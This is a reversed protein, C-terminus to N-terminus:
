GRGAGAAPNARPDSTPDPAFAQLYECVGYLTEIQRTIGAVPEGDRVILIAPIGAQEAGAIDARPNDGVMWIEAAGGAAERALAFAEPHPKEYGTVASNITAEVLPELGLHAVLEGLEPVHNSLIVHRWGLERLATLLPLADDFLRWRHKDVYHARVLSALARAREAGLGVGEYAQILLLEVHAWWSAAESLEPHPVEPSDWPFGAQLFPRLLESTVGHGPEHWDLVDKMTERWMGPREALTGDFDWVIVGGAKPASRM